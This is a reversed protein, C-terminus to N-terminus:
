IVNYNIKTAGHRATYRSKKRGVHSVNEPLFFSGYSLSPESICEYLNKPFRYATIRNCVSSTVEIYYQFLQTSHFKM